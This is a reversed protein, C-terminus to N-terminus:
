DMPPKQERYEEDENDRVMIVTKTKIIKKTPDFFMEEPVDLQWPHRENDRFVYRVSVSAQQTGNSLINNQGGVRINKQGIMILANPRLM